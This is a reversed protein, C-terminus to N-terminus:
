FAANTPVNYSIWQVAAGILINDKDRVKFPINAVLKIRSLQAEANNKPLVGYIGLVYVDPTQANMTMSFFRCWL